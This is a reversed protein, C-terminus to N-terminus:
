PQLALIGLAAQLVEDKTLRSVELKTEGAVHGRAVVADNVAQSEAVNKWGLNRDQIRRQLEREDTCYLTIITCGPFLSPARDLFM